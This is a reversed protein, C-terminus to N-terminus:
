DGRFVRYSDSNFHQTSFEFLVSQEDKQENTIQHMLGPPIELSDGPILYHRVKEGSKTILDVTLHGREMYFTEHKKIHFHMSCKKGPKFVLRKGCYKEDNWIWEEHGWGKPVKLTKNLEM